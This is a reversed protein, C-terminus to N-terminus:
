VQIYIVYVEWNHWDTEKSEVTPPIEQWLGRRFFPPQRLLAGM